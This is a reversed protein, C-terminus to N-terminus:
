IHVYIYIYIYIYMDIYIQILMDKRKLVTSSTVVILSDCKSVETLIWSQVKLTGCLVVVNSRESCYHFCDGSYVYLCTYM